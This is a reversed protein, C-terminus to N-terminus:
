RQKLFNPSKIRKVEGKQIYKEIDSFRAYHHSTKMPSKFTSDQTSAHTKIYNSQTHSHNTSNCFQSMKNEQIRNRFYKGDEGKEIVM